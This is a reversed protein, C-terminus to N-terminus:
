VEVAARMKAQSVGTYQQTTTANAHGLIDQVVRLDGTREWFASGATMRM